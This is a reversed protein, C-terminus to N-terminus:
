ARMCFIMYESFSGFITGNMINLIRAYIYYRIVLDRKCFLGVCLPSQINYWKYYGTYVCTYLITGVCCFILIVCVIARHPSLPLYAGYIVLDRKCFLGVCLPSQNLLSRDVQPELAFPEKFSFLFCVKLSGKAKSGWRKLVKLSGKAKSTYKKNKFLSSSM